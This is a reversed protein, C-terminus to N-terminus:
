KPQAMENLRKLARYELDIAAGIDCDEPTTALDQQNPRKAWVRYCDPASGQMRVSQALLEAVMTAHRCKAYAEKSEELAMLCRMPISGLPSSQNVSGGSTTLASGLMLGFLFWM